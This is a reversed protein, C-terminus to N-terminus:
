EIFNTNSLIQAIQTKLAQVQAINMIPMPGLSTTTTISAVSDVFANLAAQLKIGLVANETANSGLEIRPSGVKYLSEQLLTSSSGVKNEVSSESITTSVNDGVQNAISNFHISIKSSSSGQKVESLILDEKYNTGAEKGSSEREDYDQDGVPDKLGQVGIFSGVSSVIEHNDLHSYAIVYGDVGGVLLVTVESKISPKYFIGKKNGIVASLSVGQIIISNDMSVVDITDPHEKNYGFVYGQFVGVDELKIPKRLNIISTISNIISQNANEM